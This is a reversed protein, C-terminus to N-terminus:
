SGESSDFPLEVPHVLQVQSNALELYPLGPEFTSPGSQGRRIGEDVSCAKSLLAGQGAQKETLAAQAEIVTQMLNELKIYREEPTMPTEM